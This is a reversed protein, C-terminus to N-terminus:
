RELEEKRRLAVICQFLLRAHARHRPHELRASIQLSHERRRTLVARAHSHLRPTKSPTNGASRCFHQKHLTRM